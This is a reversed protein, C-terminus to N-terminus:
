DAVTIVGGHFPSLYFNMNFEQEAQILQNNLEVSRLWLGQRLANAKTAEQKSITENWIVFGKEKRDTDVVIRWTEIIALEIPSLEGRQLAAYLKPRLETYISDHENHSIIVTAWSQDGILKEGPYGTEEIIQHIRRVQQRNNPVFKRNTYRERWKKIPTLAVRIARKQDEKLMQKLESRLPLNIQSEFKKKFDNERAVVEKWRSDTKFKKLVELKMIEKASWGKNMARELFYFLNDADQTHAALQAAVKMDRLFVHDYNSALDKYIRISENFQRAVIYGEAKIVKEHYERYDQEQGSCFLPVLILPLVLLKVM